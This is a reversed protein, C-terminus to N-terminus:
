PGRDPAAAEPASPVAPHDTVVVAVEARLRETDADTWGGPAAIAVWADVVLLGYDHGHGAPVRRDNAMDASIQWFTVLPFWRMAPLVDDGRPEALWDPRRLILRPSWWVVPDSAHQLYVVRPHYWPADPEVLDAADSAFRVTAGGDYTPLREPTGPDRRETIIRWLESSNPPGVLLMGDARNRVDAIGSFAAEAGDAGLSEGFVLLLPRDDEPLELWREHVANFLEAGAERARGADVLFSLWSPLYSYQYGALATDGDWLLELAAAATPNIWGTGTTTVICLVEREFAGTRELEEVVLAAREEVTAASELGVFVRIPEISPAPEPVSVGPGDTVFARGQRGLDAFAVLSAESGSRLPSAPAEFEDGELLEDSLRFSEDAAAFLADNVVGDLLGIVLLAVLVGGTVRGVRPPLRRTVRHLRRSVWRSAMRLARAVGLLLAMLLVALVAGVVYGWASPSDLGMLTHLKRQWRVGQITSAILLVPTAIALLWWAVRSWLPPLQPGRFTRWLYSGITGIGYGFAAVVGSVLGQFLWHRPVLSPTQSMAYFLVAVVLGPYTPREELEELGPHASSRARQPTLV